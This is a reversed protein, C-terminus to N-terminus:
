GRFYSLIDRKKSRNIMRETEEMKKDVDRGHFVKIDPLNIPNFHIIRTWYPEKVIEDLQEYVAEWDEALALEKLMKIKEALKRYREGGLREAIVDIELQSVDAVSTKYDIHLDKYIPKIRLHVNKPIIKRLRDVMIDAKTKEDANLNLEVILISNKNKPLRLLIKKVDYELDKLESSIKEMSIVPIDVKEIVPEDKSIDVIYFGKGENKYIDIEDMSLIDLSGPYAIIQGDRRYVIRRHLHGMAIYIPSRPLENIELGPELAFFNSINQHLILVTKKGSTGSLARGIFELLKKKTRGGYTLRINMVGAFCYETYNIVFCDRLTNINTGLLKIQPILSHIPIDRRKPTDHEGLTAYIKINKDVAKSLVEITRKIVRNPPRWNDFMDGSFVIIDVHEKLATNIAEEFHDLIEDFTWTLGYITRGLHTDAFHAIQM